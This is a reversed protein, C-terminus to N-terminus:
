VMRSCLRMVLALMEARPECGRSRLFETAVLSNGVKLLIKELLKMREAAYKMPRRASANFTQKIESWKVIGADLMFAAAARTYYSPGHYPLVSLPSEWQSLKGKDIWMLDGLEGPVTPVPSDVPSFIPIDYAYVETFASPRSRRIDVSIAKGEKKNLNAVLQPAKPSEVFAKHTEVSFRSLLPNSEEM